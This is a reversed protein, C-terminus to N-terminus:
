NIMIHMTIVYQYTYKLKINSFYEIVYKKNQSNHQFNFYIFM